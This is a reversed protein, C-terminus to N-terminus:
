FTLTSGNKKIKFRGIEVVDKNDKLRVTVEKLIQTKKGYNLFLQVQVTTEGALVQQHSGYYNIEIVYEGNKAQKITYTEPGYGGTFDRSMRGGNYNLPNGYYCKEENPDTMWLDMDTNDADWTLVARIDLPMNRIFEPDIFHHKAEPHFAIIENIEQLATIEIDPFRSDWDKRVVEYLNILANEYDGARELALGLDRYSQPEEPRMELVQEFVFVADEAYGWQMLRYALIRLLQHNELEMEELNSLIRVALSEMKREKFLQACDLYFASNKQYDKKLSLYKEYLESDSFKKLANLYPTNPDWPSLEIGSQDRKSKESAGDKDSKASIDDASISPSPSREEMVDETRTQGLSAGESDGNRMAKKNSKYVPRNDQPFNREWWSQYNEWADKVFELRNKLKMKETRDAERVLRNYEDRLEDPPAIRNVAYDEVRDLVILSTERTVINFEQGTALIEKANVVPDLELEKVKQAAWFRATMLNLDAKVDKKLVITKRFTVGKKTGFLLTIKAEKKYIKGSVTIFNDVPTPISPFIEGAEDSNYEAKLFLFPEQKLIALGQELSTKGLDVWLGGSKLALSNLYSSDVKSGTSITIVPTKSGPVTQPGYNNLGDSFLLVLDGTLANFDIQGLATAGDPEIETIKMILSDFNSRTYTTQDKELKNRLTYFDVSVDPNQKLFGKILDLEKIRDRNELSGSADYIISVKSVKRNQHVVDPKVFASFYDAGDFDQGYSIMDAEKATQVPVQFGISDNAKVNKLASEFFWGQTKRQFEFNHMENQESAVPTSLNESIVQVSFRELKDQFDLPLYYYFSGNRFDLEQDFAILVRKYGKAPIPYIRAKFNDGKSWELLGPDIRRRVVSEFVQRGKDKPVVVGERMKGNVDLAFRSIRAGSSLPFYFDGELLRDTDNYYTLEMTTQALNGQTRIHISLESLRLPSLTEGSGKILVEPSKAFMFGTILMFLLILSKM